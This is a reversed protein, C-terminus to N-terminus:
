AALLNPTILTFYIYPTACVLRDKLFYLIPFHMQESLVFLLVCVTCSQGISVSYYTNYSLNIIVEVSMLYLPGCTDGSSAM